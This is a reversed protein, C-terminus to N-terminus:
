QHFSTSRDPMEKQQQWFDAPNAANQKFHSRGFQLIERILEFNSRGGVLAGFLIAPM